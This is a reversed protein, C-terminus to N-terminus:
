GGFLKYAETKTKPFVGQYALYYLVGYLCFKVAQRVDDNSYGGKILFKRTHYKFAHILKVCEKKLETAPPNINVFCNEGILQKGYLYMEKQMYLSRNNHWFMNKRIKSTEQATHINIDLRIGTKQKFKKVLDSISKLYVPKIKKFVLLIDIDSALCFDECLTSGYVTAGILDTKFIKILDSKIKELIIKREDLSLPKM